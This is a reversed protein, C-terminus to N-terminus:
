HDRAAFYRWIQELDEHAEYAELQRVIDRAKDMYAESQNLVQAMVGSKRIAEVVDAAEEAPTDAHIARIRPALDPDQLAYLVPLTVQGNILDMGAPKGLQESSQTFDLVDDRIQFAMGVYEGFAYLQEIVPQKAKAIQAGVQLCAAMLVATKNNSKDLYTEMPIDYNYQNNLQQYEGLCLKSTTFGSLERIFQQGDEGFQTLLEVVRAMLYNAVHVAKNVDTAKHLAQQGRRTDSEDIIDDHILSAVHILEAAAALQLVQTKSAKDGFRSGVIVMMPRLRKGGSAVLNEVSKQIISHRPVDRDYKVIRLMEKDIRAIDIHLANSLKM